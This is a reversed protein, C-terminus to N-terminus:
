TEAYLILFPRGGLHSRICSRERAETIPNMGVEYPDFKLKNYKESAFPGSVVPTFLAFGTAVVVFIAIPIYDSSMPPSVRFATPKYCAVQPTDFASAAVARVVIEQLRCM